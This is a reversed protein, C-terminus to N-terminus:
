FLAYLVFLCSGFFIRVGSSVLDTGNNPAVSGSVTPGNDPRDSGTSQVTGSVKAGASSKVTGSTKAAVSSAAAASTKAAASSAVAGGSTVTVANLNITSTPGTVPSALANNLSAFGVQNNARDFVVYYQRILTDGLIWLTDDESDIGLDCSTGDPIVYVAPTIALVTQSLTVVINPLGSVANCSVGATPIAALLTNINATDGILLSTGTDVIATCPASSSCTTVSNGSVTISNLTVTYYLLSGQLKQVPVYHFSGTYLTPDTGGLIL